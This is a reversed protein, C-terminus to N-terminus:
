RRYYSEWYSPYGTPYNMSSPPNVFVTNPNYMGPNYYYNPYGLNQYGYSGYSGYNGPYGGYTNPYPSTYTNPYIPYTSTSLSSPYNGGYIQNNSFGPYTYSSYAPDYSYNPYGYAGYSAGYAPYAGGPNGYGSYLGYRQNIDSQNDILSVEQHDPNNTTLNEAKLVAPLSNALIFILCLKSFLCRNM